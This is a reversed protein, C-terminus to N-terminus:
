EGKKRFYLERTACVNTQIDAGGNYFHSSGWKCRLADAGYNFRFQAGPLVIKLEAM